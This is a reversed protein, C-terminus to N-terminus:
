AVRVSLVIKSFDDLPTCECGGLWDTGDDHKGYDARYYVTGRAVRTVRYEQHSGSYDPSLVRAHIFQFGPKIDTDAVKM